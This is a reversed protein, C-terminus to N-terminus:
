RVIGGNEERHKTLAGSLVEAFENARKDVSENDFGFYTLEWLIHAVYDEKPMSGFKAEDVYFGVCYEWRVFSLGYRIDTGPKIIYVDWGESGDIFTCYEVVYVYGEKNEEPEIRRLEYFAQKFGEISSEYEPYYKFLAEKVGEWSVEKLLQSLTKM